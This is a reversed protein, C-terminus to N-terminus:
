NPPPAIEDPFEAMLEGLRSLDDMAFLREVFEAWRLAPRFELRLRVPDPTPNFAIHSSGPAVALTDGASLEHDYGDVRVWVKGELVTFREEMRPHVHEAARHGPLAWIDDLVLLDDTRSVVKVREGSRRNRFVDGPAAM